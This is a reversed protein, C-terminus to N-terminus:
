TEYIELLQWSCFLLTFSLLWLAPLRGADKSSKGFAWGLQLINIPLKFFELQVEDPDPTKGLKFNSIVSKLEALSFPTTCADTPM